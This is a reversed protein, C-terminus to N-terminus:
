ASIQLVLSSFFCKTFTPVKSVRVYVGSELEVICRPYEATSCERSFRYRERNAAGSFNSDMPSALTLM